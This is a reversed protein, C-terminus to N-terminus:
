DYRGRYVLRELSLSLSLSLSLRLDATLIYVKAALLSPIHVTISNYGDPHLQVFLVSHYGNRVLLGLVPM